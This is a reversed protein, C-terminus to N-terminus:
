PADHLGRLVPSATSSTMEFILRNSSSNSIVAAFMLLTTCTKPDRAIRAPSRNIASPNAIPQNSPPGPPSVFRTTASPVECRLIAAASMTAVSLKLSGFTTTMTVTIAIREKIVSM